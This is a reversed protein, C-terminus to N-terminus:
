ASVYGARFDRGTPAVKPIEARFPHSISGRGQRAEVMGPERDPNM